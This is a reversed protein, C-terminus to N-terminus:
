KVGSHCRNEAEVRRADGGFTNHIQCVKGLWKSGATRPAVMVQHPLKLPLHAERPLTHAKYGQGNM